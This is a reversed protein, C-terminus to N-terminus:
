GHNLIHLVQEHLIPGGKEARNGDLTTVLGAAQEIIPILTVIDYSELAFESANGHRLM